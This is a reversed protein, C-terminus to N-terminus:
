RVETWRVSKVQMVAINNSGFDGAVRSEQIEVSPFGSLQIKRGLSNVEVDSFEEGLLETQEVKM